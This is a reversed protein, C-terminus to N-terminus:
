VAYFYGPWIPCLGCWCCRISFYFPVLWADSRDAPRVCGRPKCCFIEHQLHSAEERPTVDSLLARSAPEFVSKCLGNLTNVVFFVWLQHALAFGFFVCAWGFVSALMVKKRGLQDSIYGGYFSVLVGALSSVAVTIGTEASSAGLVQTLYISLFPISMSTVLRGFMTGIIITWALPHIQRFSQIM